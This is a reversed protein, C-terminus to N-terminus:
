RVSRDLEFAHTQHVFSCRGCLQWSGRLTTSFFLQLTPATSSFRTPFPTLEASPARSRRPPESARTVRAELHQRRARETRRPVARQGATAPQQPPCSPSPVVPAPKSHHRRAATPTSRSFCLLPRTWAKHRSSVAAVTAVQPPQCAQHPLAPTCVSVAAAVAGVAALAAALVMAVVVAGVAAAVPPLVVVWAAAGVGVWSSLVPTM